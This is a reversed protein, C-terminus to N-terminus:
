LGRVLEAVSSPHDSWEMESLMAEDVLQDHGYGSGSARSEAWHSKSTQLDAHTKRGRRSQLIRDCLEPYDGRYIAFGYSDWYQGNWYRHQLRHMEQRVGLKKLLALVHGNFGYVDLYLKRFPLSRFLWDVFLATAIVGAGRGTAQELLIATVKTHGDELTREYDYVLGIPQRKWEVIFKAGM